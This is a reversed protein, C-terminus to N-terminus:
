KLCICVESVIAQTGDAPCITWSSGACAYAGPTCAGGEQPKPFANPAAFAIAALAFAALTLKM